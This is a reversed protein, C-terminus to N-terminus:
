EVVVSDWVKLGYKQVTGANMELVRDIEEPPYYIKLSWLPKGPEPEANEASGVVKDGRVWVIDIPFKMDKMWIGYSGSNSFLFLMGGDEPLGDRGSLGRMQQLMTQALEANFTKGGISIRAMPLGSNPKKILIYLGFVIGAVCLIFLIFFTMRNFRM